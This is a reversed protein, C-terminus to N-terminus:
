VVSKRDEFSNYEKINMLNEVIERKEPEGADLFSVINHQGFILINCMTEFSVGIYKLVEEKIKEVSADTVGDPTKNDIYFEVKSEKKKGKKDLVFKRVIKVNDFEIEVVCDTKAKKNIIYEEKKFKRLTKGYLAFLVGEIITSKGSANSATSSVDLNKGKIVIVGNARKFNIEVPQEGVALFNKLYLRKFIM